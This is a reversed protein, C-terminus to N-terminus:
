TTTSWWCTPSTTAPFRTATPAAPPCRPTSRAALARLAARPARRRHAGAAARPRPPPHPRQELVPPAVVRHSRGGRPGGRARLGDGRRLAGVRVRRRADVAAAGPTRQRRARAARRRARRRRRRQPRLLGRGRRPAGRHGGREHAPGQGPGPAPRLNGPQADVGRAQEGTGSRSRARRARDIRARHLAQHVGRAGAERRAREGGADVQEKSINREAVHQKLWAHIDDPVPASSEWTCKARLKAAAAIAQEESEALVGVFSGDRVVTVPAKIEGISGAQLFWAAAARRPRAANGAADHGARLEPTRRVQGAPRPAARQHRRHPLRVRAQAARAPSKARPAALDLLQAAGGRITGDEVPLESSRSWPQRRARACRRLEACAVRLAKGGESISLSGSTVGEDPSHATSAPLM